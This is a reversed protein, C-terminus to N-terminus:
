PKVDNLGWDYDLYRINMTKEAMFFEKGNYVLYKSYNNLLRNVSGYKKRFDENYWKFIGSVEFTDKEHNYRNRSKDSLFNIMGEELMGELNDATFARNHLAPCGISACVLAFHIRPEDYVGKARILGHELEDLSITTGFLPIFDIKWPSQMIAGIKRISKVPYNKIILDITFANYANILFALRKKESWQSFESEAVLSLSALYNNLLDPENKIAKYDVKSELGNESLYVHKKLFNDFVTHKHDFASAFRPQVVVAALLALFMFLTIKKM